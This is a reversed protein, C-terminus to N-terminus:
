AASVECVHAPIAKRTRKWTRILHGKSEERAANEVGVLRIYGAGPGLGVRGVGLRGVLLVM